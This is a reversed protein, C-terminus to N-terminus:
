NNNKSDDLKEKPLLKVFKEGKLEYKNTAKHAVGAPQAIAELGPIGFM